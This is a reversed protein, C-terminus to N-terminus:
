QARYEAYTGQGLCQVCSVPLHGLGEHIQGGEEIVTQLRSSSQRDFM